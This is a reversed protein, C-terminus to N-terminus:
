MKNSRNQTRKAAALFPPHKWEGADAGVVDTHSLLILPPLVKEQGASLWALLNGREPTGADGLVLIDSYFTSHERVIGM